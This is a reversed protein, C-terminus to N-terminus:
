ASARAARAPVIWNIWVGRAWSWSESSRFTPATESRAESTTSFIIMVILLLGRM